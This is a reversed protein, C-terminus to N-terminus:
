SGLRRLVERAQDPRSLVESAAGGPHAVYTAVFGGGPEDEKSMAAISFFRSLFSAYQELQFWQMILSNRGFLDCPTVIRRGDVYATQELFVNSQVIVAGDRALRTALMGYSRNIDAFLYDVGLVFIADFRDDAALEDVSGRIVQVGPRRKLARALQRSPELAVYRRPTVGADVIADHLLGHGAGVDLIALARDLRPLRAAARTMRARHAPLEGRFSAASYRFARSAPRTRYAVGCACLAIDRYVEPGV